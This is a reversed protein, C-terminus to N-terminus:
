STQPYIVQKALFRGNADMIALKCGTRYAPDFGMVVKGKLPAQMLLHYFNNGFVQIAHKDANDSIQRRLEREISPGIFRKYADEFAATIKDVAPGNHRRVLRSNGYNLISTSDVAVGVTLIKEREGRNIALVRYPPVQKLAQTFEYYTAYVQQEDKEKAGRKVKSTLEGNAWTYGRIWERFDARESFNEALIENVGAWVADLDPLDKDASIFTKAKADLGKEPFTMLWKSLPELGAERAITAKTRRKQKYPLYLDEVQQLVTAQELQKKLDPTLKGQEDILKLVDARRQNLKMLRHAEDEIERIAVEDLTGTREKRYRAIFPVTNGEDLLTLVAQIQQVRYQGLQQHVPKALDVINNEEQKVAM